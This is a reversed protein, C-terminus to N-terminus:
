MHFRTPSFEGLKEIEVTKEKLHKANIDNAIQETIHEASRKYHDMNGELSAINYFLNKYKGSRGVVALKDASMFTWPGTMVSHLQAHKEDLKFSNAFIAQSCRLLPVTQKIYRMMLLTHYSNSLVYYDARISKLEPCDEVECHGIYEGFPHIFRVQGRM